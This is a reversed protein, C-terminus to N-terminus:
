RIRLYKPNGMERQYESPKVKLLTLEFIYVVKEETERSKYLWARGM